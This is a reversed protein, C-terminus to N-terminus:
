QARRMADAKWNAKQRGSRDKKERCPSIPEPSGRPGPSLVMKMKCCCYIFLGCDRTLGISWNVGCSSSLGMAM